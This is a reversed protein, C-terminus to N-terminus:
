GKAGLMVRRVKRLLPEHRRRRAEWLADYLGMVNWMTKQDGADFRAVQLRGPDELLDRYARVYHQVMDRDDWHREMWLRPTM